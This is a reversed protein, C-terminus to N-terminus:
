PARAPSKSAAAFSQFGGGWAYSLAEYEATSWDALAIECRVTDEDNDEFTNPLLTLLHIKRSGPTLPQNYLWGGMTGNLGLRGRQM